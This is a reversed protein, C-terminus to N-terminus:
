KVKEVELGKKRLYEIISDEGIYHAAGVVVFYSKGTEIFGAIKDAMKINRNKLFVDYFFQDEKSGTMEGLILESFEQQKGQQWLSVMKPVVEQGNSVQELSGLMFAIQQDMTLNDFYSFQESASELELVQKKTRLARQAFHIDVGLEPKYDKSTFMLLQLNMGILWPKLNTVSSYPVKFTKLALQLKTLDAQNMINELTQKKPLTGNLYMAAVEVLMKPNLFDIELVLYQSKNFADNIQKSFPYMEKKGVHISGFLYVDAKDSQIKWLTPDAQSVASFSLLLTFLVLRFPKM